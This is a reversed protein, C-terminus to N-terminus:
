LYMGFNGFSLTGSYRDEIIKVATNAVRQRQTSLQCHCTPTVAINRPHVVGQFFHWTEFSLCSCSSCSSSSITSELNESDRSVNPYPWGGSQMKHM